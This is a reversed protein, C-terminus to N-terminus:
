RAGTLAHAFADPLGGLKPPDAEAAVSFGAARLAASCVPGISVLPLGALAERVSSGAGCRDAFDLLHRVQIASTFVALDISGDALEGLLAALPARDAPLAWRYSALERVDAGRAALATDLTANAEGHRQVAVLRGTLALDSMAALVEVTTYPAAATRDIRVGAARLAATPKPGRVVITAQALVAEFTARADLATVAEFLARTGVGTQFVCVAPPHSGAEDLFARLQAPDVDPLEAVTPALVPVGGLRRVLAGVQDSARSELVAVRRGALDVGTM